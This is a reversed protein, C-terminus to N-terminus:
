RWAGEASAPRELGRRVLPRQLILADRRPAGDCAGPYYAPRRGCKEFGCKEYLRLAPRNGTAVELVLARAGIRAGWKGAAGLLAAGVGRGRMAPTVGITLIDCDKGARRLLVLGCPEAGRAAIYAITEPSGLLRAMAGDDWPEESCAQHLRALLIPDSQATTEIPPTRM